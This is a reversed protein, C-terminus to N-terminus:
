LLDITDGKSPHCRVQRTVTLENLEFQAVAEPNLGHAPKFFALHLVKGQFKFGQRLVGLMGKIELQKVLQDVVMSELNEGHQAALRGWVEPQAAELFAIVRAPFLAREVDWEAVNGKLWGGDLLMSEM